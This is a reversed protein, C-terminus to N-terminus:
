GQGIHWCVGAPDILHAERGWPFDTPPKWKVGAFRAPLDKAAVEAWWAELDPVELRLMLNGAFHADDFKQLIFRVAGCRLGAYGDNEWDEVFGLEAFFRRALPYDPGSPIFPLLANM